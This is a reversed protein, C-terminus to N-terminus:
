RECVMVFWTLWRLKNVPNEIRQFNPNLAYRGWFREDSLDRPHTNYAAPRARVSQTPFLRDLREGSGRMIKWQESEECAALPVAQAV